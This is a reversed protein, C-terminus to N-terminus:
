HPLYHKNGETFVLSVVSSILWNEFIYVNIYLKYKNDQSWADDDKCTPVCSIVSLSDMKYTNKIYKNIQTNLLTKGVPIFLEM